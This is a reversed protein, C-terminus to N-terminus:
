LFGSAESLPVLHRTFASHGEQKQSKQQETLTSSAATTGSQLHQYANCYRLYDHLFEMVVIFRIGGSKTRKM